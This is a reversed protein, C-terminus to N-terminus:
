IALSSASQFWIITTSLLFQPGQISQTVLTLPNPQQWDTGCANLANCGKKWAKMWPSVIEFTCTVRQLFKLLSTVVQVYTLQGGTQLGEHITLCNLFVIKLNLFYAHSKLPFNVICKSVAQLCTHQTPFRTDYHVKSKSGDQFFSTSWLITHVRCNLNHTHNVNKWIDSRTIMIWARTHHCCNGTAIKLSQSSFQEM